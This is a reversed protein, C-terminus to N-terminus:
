DDPSESNQKNQELRRNPASGTPMPIDNKMKATMLDLRRGLVEM